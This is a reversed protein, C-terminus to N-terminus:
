HHAAAFATRAARIFAEIRVPDKLGPGSEVGSSVDVAQTKTLRIAEAVNDPNLGGSLM